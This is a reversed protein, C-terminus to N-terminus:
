HVGPETSKGKILAEPQRDLTDALQRISRFGGALEELAEAVRVQLSSQAALETKVLGAIENVRQLALNAAVSADRLQDLAARTEPSTSVQAISAVVKNLNEMIVPLKEATALLGEATSPVTPIELEGEVGRRVAPQEPDVVIEVLLSGTLLSGSALRGRLGGAVMGDLLAQAPLDTRLKAGIRQPEIEIVVRVLADKFDNVQLAFDRVTGLQIGKFNVPAGVSLGNVSGPFYLVYDRTETFVNRSEARTSYLTFTSGRAAPESASEPRPTSFEIGGALLSSLSAASFNFGEAGFSIDLGSANWFRSDARVHAAYQPEIYIDIDISDTADVLFVREVTGVAIGQHFVPSGVAISGLSHAALHLKLGPADAPTQPPLELGVFHSATKGELGPDVELYAGSLLTNLGSIGGLGIRPSVVWFRSSARLLPESKPSMRAKVVVGSLDPKLTVSEVLGVEVSKFEIKTKGAELGDATQFEITIEPGRKQLADWWLWAGIVAALIPVVWVLSIGRKRQVVVAPFEHAGPGPAPDPLSDDTM